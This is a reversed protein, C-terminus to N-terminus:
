KVDGLFFVIGRCFLEGDEMVDFTEHPIETKILWSCSLEDPCWLAEIKQGGKSSEHFYPCNKNDCRNRVLGKSTVRITTGNYAGLEDSIAGSLELLDDSHGYVAVLGSKAMRDFLHDDGENGYESGNLADAADKATLLAM